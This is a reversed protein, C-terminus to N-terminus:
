PQPAKILFPNLPQQSLDLSKEISNALRDRPTLPRLNFRDEIFRLVSTFDYRTKDIFGARAFPSIVIAPVRPGYGYKDVQPPAVHDYFGGYDDWTVVLVTNKWYPSKMLANICSTVYWMGVHIDEPPHESEKITPVIWAVSPLTGECLDRFYETTSVLHTMLKKSKMFSKFGPLPNLLDFKKPHAGRPKPNEGRYYKWTVNASDLLEALSQFKIGEGTPKGRLYDNNIIEGSQAAVAYLHNPLSAGALSSFFQDCLTYHDAYAWYNPIDTRDYYGMTDLSQEAMIWGDNKGGHIAAHASEWSHPLDHTLDFTFHFPVIFPEGGPEAPVKIGKPFGDAGPYTGFYNDFSHNEQILFLIHEIQGSPASLTTPPRWATGGTVKIDNAYLLGKEFQGSAKVTKGPMLDSPLNRTGYAVRIVHGVSGFIAVLPGTIDLVTGEVTKPRSTEWRDKAELDSAKSNAEPTWGDSVRKNKYHYGSLHYICLLLAVVTLLYLVKRTRVRGITM